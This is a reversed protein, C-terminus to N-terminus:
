KLRLNAYALASAVLFSAIAIVVIFMRAEQLVRCADFRRHRNVLGSKQRNFYSDM